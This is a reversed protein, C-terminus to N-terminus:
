TGVIVVARRSSEGRGLNTAIEMMQEGLSVEGPTAAIGDTRGELNEIDLGKAPGGEFEVEGWSRAEFAQRLYRIKGNSVNISYDHPNGGPHDHLRMYNLPNM